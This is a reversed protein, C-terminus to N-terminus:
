KRRRVLFGFSALGLLLASSPEPIAIIRLQVAQIASQSNAAGFAIGNTSNGDGFVDFSQENADALFTGTITDGTNGANADGTNSNNLNGTSATDVGPASGNSYATIANARSGRGDHVITQIEYTYGIILNSFDISRINFQGGSILAVAPNAGDLQGGGFAGQNNRDANADVTISPGAAGTVTTLTPAGVFTIGNVTPSPGDATTANYAVGDFGNTSIFSEDLGDGQFINVGAQWM